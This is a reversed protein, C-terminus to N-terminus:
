ASFPQLLEHISPIGSELLEDPALERCSFEYDLEENHTDRRSFIQLIM